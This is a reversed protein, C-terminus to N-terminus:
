LVDWSGTELFENVSKEANIIISDDYGLMALLKIANRSVARGKQLQYNFLVQNDKIDEQVPVLRSIYDCVAEENDASCPGIVVIFKDSKRTIVDAIKQDRQAKVSALKPSLPFQALIEQPTPLLKEYHFSM